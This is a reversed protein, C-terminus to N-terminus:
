DAGSQPHVGTYGVYGTCYRAPINLCRCFCIALHAFDRCVGLGEQHADLATKTSRADDGSFQIHSHVHDVSRRCWRGAPSRGV